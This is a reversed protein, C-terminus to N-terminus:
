LRMPMILWLSKDDGPEQFYCISDSDQMSLEVLDGPIARLAEIMYTVNFGAEIKEGQYDVAMRDEAEEHEPNHATV